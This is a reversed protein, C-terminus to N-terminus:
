LCSKNGEDKLPPQIVSNSWDPPEADLFGEAIEGDELYVEDRM